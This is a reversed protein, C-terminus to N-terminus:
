VTHRREDSGQLPGQPLNLQSRLTNGSQNQRLLKLTSGIFKVSRSVAPGLGRPPTAVFGDLPANRRSVRSGFSYVTCGGLSSQIEATLPSGVPRLRRMTDTKM